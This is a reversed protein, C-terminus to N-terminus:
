ARRVSALTPSNRTILEAGVTSDLARVLKRTAGTTASRLSDAQDSVVLPQHGALRAELLCRKDDASHKAGDVDSLHVEVRTVRDGFRALGREVIAETQRSLEDHGEVTNDTSVQIKVDTEPAAQPEDIGTIARISPLLGSRNTATPDRLVFLEVELDPGVHHNSIFALVERGSLREVEGIFREQMAKQFASRTEQVLTVRQLEIMTKEVETYVGSM